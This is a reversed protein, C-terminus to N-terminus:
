VTEGSDLMLEFGGYILRKMDFPANSGQQQMRPDAMVKETGADRVEKSPWVIWSFVIGEDESADVARYFDTVKGHPVDDGWCEVLRQAGHEIFMEAAEKASDRYADKKGQPVPIVFGEIYSM